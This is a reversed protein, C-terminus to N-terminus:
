PLKFMLFFMNIGTPANFPAAPNRFSNVTGGVNTMQLNDGVNLDVVFRTTHIQTGGIANYSGQIPTGNLTIVFQNITPVLVVSFGYSVFYTGAIGVTVTNPTLPAVGGSLTFAGSNYQIQKFGVSAGNVIPGTADANSSYVSLSAGIPTPGTAGTAGTAGTPGTAGTAGTAGTPGTPGTPGTDGTAGTPGTEGSVGSPGTSGTPGTAGISGTAGTSGVSGTPGTPGM